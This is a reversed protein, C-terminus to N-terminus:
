CVKIELKGKSCAARLNHKRQALRQKSEQNFQCVVNGPDQGNPLHSHFTVQGLHGSPVIELGTV